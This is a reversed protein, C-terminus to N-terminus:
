LDGGDSWSNVIDTRAASSSCDAKRALCFARRSERDKFALVREESSSALEEAASDDDV